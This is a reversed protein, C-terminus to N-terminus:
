RALIGIYMCTHVKKRQRVEILEKATPLPVAEDEGGWGEGEGGVGRLYGSASRIVDDGTSKISNQSQLINESSHVVPLTLESQVTPINNQSTM